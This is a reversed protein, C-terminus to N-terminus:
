VAASDKEAEAAAMERLVKKDVKGMTNRPLFELIRFVTPVLSKPLHRICYTRLEEQSVPASVTLFAVPVEGLVADAKGAVAAETVAPHGTLVAEIELPAINEGGRIILDKMRGKFTFSRDPNRVGLDGTKMWGGAGIAKDTEIPNNYYEQMLTFGRMEIEGVEGDPLVAGSAPDTIRCQVGPITRGISGEAPPASLPYNLELVTTLLNETLAYTHIIKTCFTNVFRFLIEPSCKDAGVGCIRLKLPNTKKSEEPHQGDTNIGEAEALQLFRTLITPVYYACTIGGAKADEWMQATSAYERLVGSGGTPIAALLTIIGTNHHMPLVHHFVAEPTERFCALAYIATAGLLAKHSHVIGKPTGTTGTSYQLVAPSEPDLANIYSLYDEESIGEGAAILEEMPLFDKPCAGNGMFVALRLKPFAADHIEGPKSEAPASVAANLVSVFDIEPTGETFFLVETDSRMLQSAFAEKHFGDNYTVAINGSKLIGFFTHMWVPRKSAWIGIHAGGRYGLVLLGKAIADSAADFDGWNQTYGSDLYRLLPAKPQNQATEKLAAGITTEDPDM